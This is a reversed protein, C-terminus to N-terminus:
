IKWGHILIHPYIVLVRNHINHTPVKVRHIDALNMSIPLLHTQLAAERAPRTFRHGYGRERDQLSGRQLEGEELLAAPLDCRFSYLCLIHIM